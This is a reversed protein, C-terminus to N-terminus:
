AATVNLENTVQKAPSLTCELLTLKGSIIRSIDLLEGHKELAFDIDAAQTAVRESPQPDATQHRNPQAQGSNPYRRGLQRNYCLALLLLLLSNLLVPLLVYGVGLQRIGEGGIIAPLYQAQQEVSGAAALQRRRGLGPPGSLGALPHADRQRGVGPRQGGQARGVLYEGTGDIGPQEAQRDTTRDVQPRPESVGLHELDDAREGRQRARRRRHEFQLLREVRDRDVQVKVVNPNIFEAVAEISHAATSM